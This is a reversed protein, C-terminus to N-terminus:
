NEGTPFIKTVTYTFVFPSNPVNRVQLQNALESSPVLLVARPSTIGLASASLASRHEYLRQLIPLLYANTKGCGTEAACIVNSLSLIEPIASSQTLCLILLSLGVNVICIDSNCTYNYLSRYAYLCCKDSCTTAANTLPHVVLWRGKQFRFWLWRKKYGVTEM